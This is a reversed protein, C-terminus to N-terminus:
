VQELIHCIEHYFFYISIIQSLHKVQKLVQVVELQQSETRLQLRVRFQQGRRQVRPSLDFGHLLYHLFQCYFALYYVEAINRISIAWNRLRLIIYFSMLLFLNEENCALSLSVLFWSGGWLYAYLFSWHHSCILPYTESIFNTEWSIEHVRFRLYFYRM